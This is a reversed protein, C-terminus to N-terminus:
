EKPAEVEAEAVPEQAPLQTSAEKQIAAILGAVGAYPQAGLYQLIGNVLDTSLVLRDM